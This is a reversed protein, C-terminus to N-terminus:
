LFYTKKWDYNFLPVILAPLVLGIIPSHYLKSIFLLSDPVPFFFSLLYFKAFFDPLLSGLVILGKKNINLLEAIILGILIHSLWDPM